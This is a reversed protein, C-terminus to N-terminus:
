KDNSYLHGDTGVYATNHSYTQPYANQATAGILYILSSTDTAGATNKTDVSTYEYTTAATIRGYADVTFRPIVIKEGNNGTVATTPGYSGNASSAPLRAAPLTGSTINSANIATLDAGDGKIKGSVTLDGLLNSHGLVLLDNLQAM